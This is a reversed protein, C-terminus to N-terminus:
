SQAGSCREFIRGVVARDRSKDGRLHLKKRQQLQPALMTDKFLMVVRGTRFLVDLKFQAILELENLRGNRRINDLFAKQFALVPRKAPAVAGQALAAERLDDMVAACDVSKPCRSSCTQCSVCDWIAQSRMAMDSEGLQVMRVIRNPALDMHGSVPCGATCKGCQYCDALHAEALHALGPVQSVVASSASEHVHLSWGREAGVRAFGTATQPGRSVRCAPDGSHSSHFSCM